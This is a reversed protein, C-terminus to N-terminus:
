ISNYIANLITGYDQDGLGEGARSPFHVVKDWNDSIDKWYPCDPTFLLLRKASQNMMGPIQPDGWWATLEAFDAPMNAPYNTVSKGFGLEHTSADSYVVIIHRKKMGADDWDSKMAYALAELGDEPEDGGGAPSLSGVCKEFNFNDSPLNFFDTVLMAKDRDAKYDRFAVVRARLSSINKKQHNMTNTIDNYFNLANKKVQELVPGMSGTTDICFVIDVNYTMEFNEPM